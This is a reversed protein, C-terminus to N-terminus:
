RSAAPEDAGARGRPLSFPRDLICIVETGGHPHRRVLLSGRIADARYQMIHLGMGPTRNARHRIGVGNDRIALQVRLPTAALQIRIRTPKGHKMANNVAEQAIRYLHTATSHRHILVPARCEFRCDVRYLERTRGALERLTMMLGEPVPNVPQLGQALSRSLDLAKGLLKALRGAEKARFPSEEKLERQLLSAMYYLAHLHQGLGDHLDHGLRQREREGVELLERELQKRTTIDRLMAVFQRRGGQAFQKMTFELTIGRGDKRRGLVERSTRGFEQRGARLHHALFDEQRTQGPSTLLRSINHGVIEDASYGFIQIAAPNLSEVTGSEDLTIIGVLATDMIAHLCEVADALAATREKVRRELSTNLEKLQQEARKRETIDNVLVLRARRGDYNIASVTVGVHFISGDRKLHRWEGAYSARSRRRENLVRLFKALDEPPRIDKVTMRVFTKRPWGYLRLAAENVDLMELTNEDCIWMPSPNLELLLRYQDDRAMMTRSGHDTVGTTAAPSKGLVLHNKATM